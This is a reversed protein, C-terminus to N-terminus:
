RPVFALANPVARAWRAGVTGGALAIQASTGSDMRLADRLGAAVLARAFDEPTGLELMALVYKGNADVGFGVQRTARWIETNVDFGEKVGNVSYAGATVLRPGATIADNVGLWAPDSSTLSINAADGVAPNLDPFAAPNYTVVVEGIMPTFDEDRVATVAGSALSLTRYGFGGVRAYGDGVFLTLFKANPSPQVSNVTLKRGAVELTLRTRSAGWLVTNGTLGPDAAFGVGARTGRWYALTAGGSLLFDVAQLTPPDFYGGNVVAVAGSRRMFELADMAGLAPASLVRPTFRLPDLTVLHLKTKGVPAVMYTVGPPTPGPPPAADARPDATIALTAGNETVTPVAARDTLDLELVADPGDQWLRARSLGDGGVPVAREPAITDRLRLTLRNQTRETLGWDAARALTLSVANPRRTASWTTVANFGGVPVTVPPELNLGTATQAARVGLNELASLPFLLSSGQPVPAGLALPTGDPLTWGTPASYELRATGYTLRLRGAQLSSTKVRVGLRALVTADLMPEALEVTQAGPVLPLNNLLVPAALAQSSFAATSSVALTVLLIPLARM